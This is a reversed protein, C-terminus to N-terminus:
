MVQVQQRVHSSLCLLFEWWSGLYEHCAANCELWIMSRSRGGSTGLMRSVRGSSTCLFSLWLSAVPLLLTFGGTRRCSARTRRLTGSLFGWRCSLRFFRDADGSGVNSAEGVHLSVAVFTAPLFVMTLIALAKM